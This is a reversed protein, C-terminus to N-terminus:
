QDQLVVYMANDPLNIEAFDGNDLIGIKSVAYGAADLLVAAKIKKNRIRIKVDTDAAKWPMRGTNEIRFGDVKQDRMEFEAKTEKWGTPRYVTGTQVLIKSSESLPKEDMSVVNVAAYSNGTIITVDSLDFSGKEGLFGCVGQAAPANMTCIGSNYNWELEGTSSIVTGKDLNILQNLDPDKNVEDGPTGYEVIVSGTLYALPSVQTQESSANQTDRNPDFGMEETLAPVVRQWMSELTRKEAVTVKGKQLYGKRYQLANAPFMALQGPTSITWRNMPHQGDPLNEWTFYPNTDYAMATPAFWYYSDVGTLSMYAAILFPGEAQYQNPLNWGSETVLVPHGVPQKINIPFKHPQRMVSKGQYYHGPDTRWGSNEGVHGPDFYRNLAIVDCASNTWREIDLLRAADATKWNNGNILQKCGLSRYYDAMEQYFDRQVQAMFEMQDAMRKQVGGLQEQTAQWIDYIDMKGGQPNDGTLEENEWAKKVQDITGYKQILWSYFRTRIVNKLPEKIGQITWFFLGDENKVQILGVAPDDKLAIGTYPNTETYLYRVWTKYADKLRDNFFMVGWLADKGAYGDIGWEEPIWGGMHGNHAWFPSITSYIGEKKMYAVMKWIADVDQKDVDTILTGKGAPNISGHFRIMNIGMKSLFKAYHTLEEDTMEGSLSGGNISWFRVPFNKGNVFSNGDSSLGIFGNEGAVDENMYSLDLLADADFDDGPYAFDWGKQPDQASAFCSALFALYLIILKRFIIKDAIGFLDEFIM